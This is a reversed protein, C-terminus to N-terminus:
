WNVPGPPRWAPIIEIQGAEFRGATWVPVYQRILGITFDLVAPDVPETSDKWTAALTFNPATTWRRIQTLPLDKADHAEERYQLLFVPSAPVLDLDVCTRNEDGRLYTERTRAGGATMTADRIATDK